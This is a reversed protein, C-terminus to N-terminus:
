EDSRLIYGGSMVGMRRNIKTLLKKRINCAVVYDKDCDFNYGSLVSNILKQEKSSLYIDGM